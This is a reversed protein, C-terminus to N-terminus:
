DDVIRADDRGGDNGQEAGPGDTDGGDPPAGESRAKEEPSEFAYGQPPEPVEAPAVDGERAEERWYDDRRYGSETAEAGDVEADSVPSDEKGAGPDADDGASGGGSVGKGSGSM